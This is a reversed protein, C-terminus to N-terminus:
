VDGFHHMIQSVQETVYDGYGWGMVGADRALRPLRLSLDGKEYMHPNALLLVRFDDLMLELGEYFPEDIDGYQATFRTGMEVFAFMLDLTGLIDDTLQRYDTVPRAAVLINPLDPMGWDDTSFFHDEIRKRYKELLVEDRQSGSALRQGCWPCFRLPMEALLPALSTRYTQWNACTCKIGKIM